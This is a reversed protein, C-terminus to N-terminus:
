GRSGRPAFGLQLSKRRSTSIVSCSSLLGLSNSTNKMLLVKTNCGCGKRLIQECRRWSVGFSCAHWLFFSFFFSLTHSHTASQVSNREGDISTRAARESARELWRNELVKKRIRGM